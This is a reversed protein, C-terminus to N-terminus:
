QRRSTIGREARSEYLEADAAAAAEDWSATGAPSWPALGISARVRVGPARNSDLSANRTIREVIPRAEAPDQGRIVVVFEDGGVRAVLDGDRVGARLADALATIAADGAPHGHTDNIAKLGDLDVMVITSDEDIGAIAHELGRRNLLGTLPDTDAAESAERIQDTNRLAEDLVGALLELREADERTPWDAARGREVVLWGREGVRVAERDGPRNPVITLRDAGPVIVPGLQELLADVGPRHPRGYLEATATFLVRMRDARMSAEHSARVLAIAGVSAAVALAATEAAGTLAEAIIAGAAFGAIAAGVSRPVSGVAARAMDRDALAWAIVVLMATHMLTFVAASALVPWLWSSTGDFVAWTAAAAVAAVTTQALGFVRKWLSLERRLLLPLHAAAIVLGMAAPSTYALLMGIGLDTVDQYRRGRRSPSVAVPYRELLAVTVGGAGVAAGHTWRFGDLVGFAAVVAAATAMTIATVIVWPSRGPGTQEEM